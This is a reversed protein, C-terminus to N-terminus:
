RGKKRSHLAHSGPPQPAQTLNALQPAAPPPLPPAAATILGVGLMICAAGAVWRLGLSEQFLLRGLVGQM